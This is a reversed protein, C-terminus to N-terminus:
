LDEYNTQGTSANDFNSLSAEREYTFNLQIQEQDYSPEPNPLHAM